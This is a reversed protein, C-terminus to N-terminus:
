TFGSSTFREPIKNTIVISASKGATIQRSHSQRMLPPITQDPKAAPAIPSKYTSITSGIHNLRGFGTIKTGTSKAAMPSYRRYISRATFPPQNKDNANGTVAAM